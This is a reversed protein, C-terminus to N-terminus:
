PQTVYRVGARLRHRENANVEWGPQNLFTSRSGGRMVVLNKFIPRTPSAVGPPAEDNRRMM